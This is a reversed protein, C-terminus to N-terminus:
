WATRISQSISRGQGYCFMVPCRAAKAMVAAFVLPQVTAASLLKSGFSGGVAPATFRVQEYPM